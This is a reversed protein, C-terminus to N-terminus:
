NVLKFVQDLEGKLVHVLNNSSIKELAEISTQSYFSSHPTLMVDDRGVLPHTELQPTEDILVDAAYGRLKGEDLAKILAAEDVCQGRGMNILIPHRRMQEFAQDNFMNRTDDNLNMHSIIIDSQAFVDEKSLMEVGIARADEDSVFPDYAVVRSVLPGLKKATCKGIKGLGFIGVTTEEIRPWSKGASYDWKHEQDIQRGYFKLQKSMAFVYAVAGEAVDWTCYEGVPCVKVGHETAAELDVGDWGTSNLSVVKLKPAHEFVERDIKVFATLLGDVDSIKELFEARNEDTYAYVEIETEPGLGARITEIELDHTPMMSEAYDSILIKM